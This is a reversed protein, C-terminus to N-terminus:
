LVLRASAASERITLPIISRLWYAGRGHDMLIGLKGCERLAPSNEGYHPPPVPAADIEVEGRTCDHDPVTASNERVAYSQHTNRKRNPNFFPDRTRQYPASLQTRDLVSRDTLHGL